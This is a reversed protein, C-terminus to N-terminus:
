RVMATPIRRRAVAHALVLFANEVGEGTKASTYVVECGAASASAAVDARSFAAREALDAKNVAVVRPVPGATREVSQVWTYLDDLTSRRTLDAVALIGHAGSFYADKLLEMLSHQGMIDWISLDVIMPGAAGPFALALSKKSVKTGLTTMYRDDFADVVFRRVLSTKGVSTSGILCVKWKARMPVAM